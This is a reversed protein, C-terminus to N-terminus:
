KQGRPDPDLSGMSDPDGDANTDLDVVSDYVINSIVAFGSSFVPGKCKGFEKRLQVLMIESEPSNEVVLENQWM